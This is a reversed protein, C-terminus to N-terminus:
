IFLYIFLSPLFSPRVSSRVRGGLLSSRGRSLVAAGRSVSMHAIGVVDLAENELGSDFELVTSLDSCCRTGSSTRVRARGGLPYSVRFM